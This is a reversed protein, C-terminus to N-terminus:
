WLSTNLLRLYETIMLLQETIMLLQETVMLLHETVMLLHEALTTTLARSPSHQDSQQIVCDM